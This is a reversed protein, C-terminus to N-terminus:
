RAVKIGGGELNQGGLKSDLWRSNGSVPRVRRRGILSIDFKRMGGGVSMGRLGACSCLQAPDPEPSTPHAPRHLPRTPTWPRHTNHGGTHGRGEELCPSPSGPTLLPSCSLLCTGSLSGGLLHRWGLLSSGAQQTPHTLCVDPILDNQRINAKSILMAPYGERSRCIDQGAESKNLLHSRM